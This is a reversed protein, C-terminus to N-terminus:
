ATEGSGKLESLSFRTFRSLPLDLRSRGQRKKFRTRLVRRRMRHNAQVREPPPGLPKAEKKVSEPWTSGIEASRNVAKKELRLWISAIERFPSDAKEQSKEDRKPTWPQPEADHSKPRPPFRKLFKGRRYQATLPPLRSINRNQPQTPRRRRRGHHLNLKQNQSIKPTRCPHAAEM